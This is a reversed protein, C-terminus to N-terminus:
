EVPCATSRGECRVGGAPVGSQCRLPLTAMSGRPLPESKRAVDTVLVDTLGGARAAAPVFGLFGFGPRDVIAPGPIGNGFWGPGATVGGAATETAPTGTTAGGEFGGDVRLGGGVGFGGGFGLCGVDVSGPFGFTGCGGFGGATVTGFGGGTGGVGVTGAGTGVSGTVTGLGGVTGTVTGV